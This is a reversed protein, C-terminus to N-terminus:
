GTWALDDVTVTKAEDDVYLEVFGASGFTAWRQTPDDSRPLSVLADYPDECVRGIVRALETLADSPFGGLKSLAKPSLRPQYSM